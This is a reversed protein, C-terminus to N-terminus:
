RERTSIYQFLRLSLYLMGVAGLLLVCIILVRFFSKGGSYDPLPQTVKNAHDTKVLPRRRPLLKPSSAFEIYALTQKIEDETLFEMSVMERKEYANFINNAYVDGSKIVKQSNHIFSVLWDLPRRKTVSGLAPGYSGEHHIFHCPACQNMFITRGRLPADGRQIVDVDMEIENESQTSEKKIYTLADKIEAFSLKPFSPMVQDNYKSYLFNAYVDGSVIVDQSNKIFRILWDQSKKRTISALMPGTKEYHIDHCASCMTQFIMKGTKYSTTSDSQAQAINGLMTLISIVVSLIKGSRNKMPSKERYNM